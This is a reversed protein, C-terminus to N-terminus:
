RWRATWPRRSRWCPKGDDPTRGGAELGEGILRAVGGPERGRLYKPHEKAIVYDLGAAARGLERLDEDRRDGPM